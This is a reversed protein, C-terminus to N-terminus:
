VRSYNTTSQASVDYYKFNNDQYKGLVFYPNESQLEYKLMKDM